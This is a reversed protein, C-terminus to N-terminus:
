VTLSAQWLKILLGSFRTVSTNLSLSSSWNCPWGGVGQTPQQITRFIIAIHVVCCPFLSRIMLNPSYLLTYTQIVNTIIIIYSVVCICINSLFYAWIRTILRYCPIVPLKIENMNELSHPVFVSLGLIM